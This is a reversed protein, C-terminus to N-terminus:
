SEILHPRPDGEVARNVAAWAAEVQVLDAPQATASRAAELVLQAEHCIADREADTSVAGAVVALMSLLATTVAPEGAGYRRIQGCALDLYEDFGRSPITARVAGRSDRGVMAELCRGALTWLLATLRGIAHVATTPDNIAPSLSKVAVDVLQRIGFGVDGQQTREYGIQVADSAAQHLSGVTPDDPGHGDPHWAWMLPAGEVVYDGIPVHLSLLVDFRRAIEALGDVTVDQIFGSEHAPLPVAGPPPKLASAAPGSLESYVRDITQLTEREVDRMMTDVRIEETAHHVFYVLAAVSALALAFAGAVAVQPVYPEAGGEVGRLVALAYAFTALFVALVLQTGRDRMFTRLLRPSFQQSALQLSVVMLSFVLGTVTIVSGAVAALLARAGEVDSTLLRAVAGSSPNPVMIALEAMVVAAVVALTPLFWLSGRLQEALGRLRLRHLRNMAQM